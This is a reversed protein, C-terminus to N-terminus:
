ENIRTAGLVNMEKISCKIQIRRVFTEKNNQNEEKRIKMADIAHKQIM